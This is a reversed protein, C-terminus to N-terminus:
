VSHSSNLRTSKRDAMNEVLGVIPKNVQKAMNIAKGVVMSVLKSPTTIPNGFAFVQEPSCSADGYWGGFLYGIRIPNEPEDALGGSEVQQTVVASGGQTDFTVTFMEEPEMIGFPFSAADNYGQKENGEQIVLEYFGVAAPPVSSGETTDYDDMSGAGPDEKGKKEGIIKGGSIDVRRFRYRAEGWM